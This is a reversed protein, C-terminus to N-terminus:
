SVSVRNGNSFIDVLLYLKPNQVSKKELTSDAPKQFHQLFFFFIVYNNKQVWYRRRRWPRPLPGPNLNPRLKLFMAHISRSIVLFLFDSPYIGYSIVQIHFRFHSVSSGTQLVSISEHVHLICKHNGLPSPVPSAQIPFKPSVILGM